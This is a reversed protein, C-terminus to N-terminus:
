TFRAICIPLCYLALYLAICLLVFCRLAAFSLEACHLVVYGGLVMRVQADTHIQTRNVIKVTLSNFPLLLYSMEPYAGPVIGKHMSEEWKAYPLAELQESARDWYIGVNTMRGLNFTANEKTLDRSVFREVWKDDVGSLSISSITIGFSVISQPISTHDEYRIHINHFSVDINDIIRTSVRQIYSIKTAKEHLDEATDKEKDAADEEVEIEQLKSIKSDLIDKRVEEPTYRNIDIPGLTTTRHSTIHHPPNIIIITTDLLPTRTVYFFTSYASCISQFCFSFPAFAFYVLAIVSCCLLSLAAYHRV